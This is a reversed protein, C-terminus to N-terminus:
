PKPPPPLPRWHTLEYRHDCPITAVLMLGANSLVIVERDDPCTEIPQWLAAEYADIAKEILYRPVCFGEDNIADEAASIAAEMVDDLGGM